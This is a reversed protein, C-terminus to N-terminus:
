DIGITLAFNFATNKVENRGTVDIPLSLVVIFHKGTEVTIGPNLSFVRHSGHNDITIQYAAAGILQLQHNIVYYGLDGYLYVGGKDHHETQKVFGMYEATADISLNNTFDYSWVLGGGIKPINSTSRVREDITTNGMPWGAGAILALNSKNGHYFHYRLGFLLLSFDSSVTFGSELDPLIGYTFRFYTGSVVRMSDPTSYINQRKGDSDWYSNSRLHYFGPEFEVTKFDVTQATQSYLKSASLGGIQSFLAQSLFLATIVLSFIKM